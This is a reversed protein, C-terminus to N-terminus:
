GEVGQEHAAGLADAIQKALLLAEDLLIAGRAIRQSLDEGEVLEMVLATFDSTKELGYSRGSTRITSPRSRRPKASFVRWVTRM